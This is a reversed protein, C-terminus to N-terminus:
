PRNWETSSSPWTRPMPSALNACSRSRTRTHHPGCQAALHGRTIEGVRDGHHHGDRRGEAGPPRAGHRQPRRDPEHGDCEQDTPRQEEDRTRAQEDGRQGTTGPGAVTGHDGAREDGAGREDGIGLPDITGHVGFHPGAPVMDLHPGPTGSASCEGRTRSTLHDIDPACRRGPGGAVVPSGAAMHDAPDGRLLDHGPTVAVERRPRGVGDPADQLSPGTGQRGIAARQERPEDQPVRAPLRGHRGIVEASSPEAM